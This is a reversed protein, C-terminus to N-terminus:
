RRRVPRGEPLLATVRRVGRALLRHELQSLLASGLGQGRWEPDLSIRMVWARDEDVRAVATGIIHGDRTAVVAPHRNLLSGVVDSLAFLPLQDTTTSSSDMRVVAELDEPEFDRITWADM